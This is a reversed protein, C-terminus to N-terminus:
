SLTARTASMFNGYGVNYWGELWAQVHDHQKAYESDLWLTLLEIPVEEQWVFPKTLGDTRFLILKDNATLDGNPVLEFQMGLGILPNERTGSGTNLLSKTLAVAAAGWMNIPVWLQFARARGNVKRGRDNTYTYQHQIMTMIIDAMEDATPNVPDAVNLVPYDGAAIDNKFSGSDGWSHTTSFFTQGNFANGNSNVLSTILSFPHDLAVVSLEAARRMLQGTKDRRLDTKKIAISYEWYKNRIEFKYAGFERVQREGVYERMDGHGGLFPYEEVASNSEVRLTVNNLVSPEALRQEYELYFQGKFGNPSLIQTDQPM